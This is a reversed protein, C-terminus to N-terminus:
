YYGATPKAPQGYEPVPRNWPYPKISHHHHQVSHMASYLHHGRPSDYEPPKYGRKARQYRVLAPIYTPSATITADPSEIDEAADPHPDVFTTTPCFSIAYSLAAPQQATSCQSSLCQYFAELDALM